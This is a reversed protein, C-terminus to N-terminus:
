RAERFARVTKAAGSVATYRYNDGTEVCTLDVRDEDALNPYDGAVFVVTGAEPRSVLIIAIVIFSYATRTRQYSAVLLPGTSRPQDTSCLARHDGRRPHNISCPVTFDRQEPQFRISRRLRRFSWLSLRLKIRLPRSSRPANRNHRPSRRSARRKTRTWSSGINQLPKPIM